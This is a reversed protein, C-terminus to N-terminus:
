NMVQELAYAHIGTINTDGKLVSISLDAIPSTAAFIITEVEDRYWLSDVSVRILYRQHGKVVNLNVSIIESGDARRLSLTGTCDETATMEIEVYNGSSLDLSTTDVMGSGDVHVLEAQEPATDYTGWLYPLYGLSYFHTMGEWYYDICEINQAWSFSSDTSMKLQELVSLKEEYRDHLVWIQYGDVLCFPRYNSYLYEATLYHVVSSPVNDFGDQYSRIIAFPANSKKVEEIYMLQSYESNLFSPSQNTYMPKKRETFAYLLTQHSYDLFTEDEELAADFFQKLKEYQLTTEPTEVVRDVKQSYPYYTSPAVMTSTEMMTLSQGYFSGSSTFIAFVFLLSVYSTVFVVEKKGAFLYVGATMTLVSSWMLTNWDQEFLGHRILTRSFSFVLSFLLILQVMTPVTGIEKRKLLVAVSLAVAAVPIIWYFVWYLLNSKDGFSTYSWRVNGMMIDLFELVRALPNIGKWVCLAIWVAVTLFFIVIGAMLFNILRTKREKHVLYFVFLIAASPVSFSLGIDLRYFCIVACAIVFIANNLFSPKKYAYVAAVICLLGMGASEIFRDMSFPFLLCLLLSLTDDETLYKLLYFIVVYTLPLISYNFWVGGFWDNNLLAYLVRGVQYSLMHADINEVIPIEGFHFLGWIASGHNSTEFMETASAIQLPPQYALMAIGLVLIPYQWNIKSSVIADKRFTCCYWVICALGCCAFCLLVWRFYNTVYVDHQNLIKWAEYFVSLVAPLFYLPTSAVRIVAQRDKKMFGVAFYFFLSFFLIGTVVYIWANESIFQADVFGRVVAIASITCPIATFVSWQIHNLGFDSKRLLFILWVSLNLAFATDNLFLNKDVANVFAVFLVVVGCTAIQNALKLEDLSVAKFIKICLLVSSVLLFLGPFLAFAWITMNQVRQMADINNVLAQGIIRGFSSVQVNELPNWFMGILMSFYVAPMILLRSFNDKLYCIKQKFNNM